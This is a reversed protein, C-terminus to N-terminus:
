CRTACPQSPFAVLPIPLHRVPAPKPPPPPTYVQSGRLLAELSYDSEGMARLQQWLHIIQSHTIPKGVEPDLLSPESKPVDSEVPTSIESNERTNKANLRKLGEVISPTMTLRVMNFVSPVILLMDISNAGPAIKM